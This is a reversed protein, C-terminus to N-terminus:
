DSVGRLFSSPGGFSSAPKETPAPPNSGGVEQVGHLCALGFQAVGRHVVSNYCKRHMRGVILPVIGKGM